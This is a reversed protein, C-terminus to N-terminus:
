NNTAERRKHTGDNREAEGGGELRWHVIAGTDLSNHIVYFHPEFKM